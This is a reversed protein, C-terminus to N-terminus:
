RKRRPRLKQMSRAMRQKEEEALRALEFTPLSEIPIPQCEEYNKNM